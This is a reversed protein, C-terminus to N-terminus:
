VLGPYGASKFDIVYLKLCYRSGINVYLKTRGRITLTVGIHGYDMFLGGEAQRM